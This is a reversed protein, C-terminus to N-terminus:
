SLRHLFTLQETDGALLRSLDGIFTGISDTAQYLWRDAVWVNGERVAKFDALLPQAAIMAQISEFPAEIAANYIIVDADAAAEYFAEMTIDVSASTEQGEMVDFVYRGGALEISRVIYDQTGRVTVAGDAKLAFFAVNRGSDPADALAEVVAAQAEFAADAEAQRDALLGYLRIWEVRGLPHPESSSRDVFVPIGLLGILEKVQPTHFIMMSEIALDCNERVLLEFDPESYKGAFLIEGREMAAAAAKVYWGDQRTGSLRIRDLAGISDFLAMASTAALYIRDLPKQLVVIAPDLGEPAGAGEPVVLYREGEAMRILAYGGEYLDVAFGEAYRLPMTGTRTLGPVDGPDASLRIYLRYEIEHPQSMATTTACLSFTRGLPVPIVFTSSNGTHEAAYVEGDLLAETYNPSSFVISATARGDKVVVQPCTITIRGSGGTFTFEEPAYTGDATEAEGLGRWAGACLIISLALAAALFRRM